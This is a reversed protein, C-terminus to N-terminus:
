SHNRGDSGHHRLCRRHKGGKFRFSFHTVRKHIQLSLTQIYSQKVYWFRSSFLPQYFSSPLASASLYLLVHRGVSWSSPLNTHSEFKHALIFLHIVCRKLPSVCQFLSSLTLSYSSRPWWWVPHRDFSDFQIKFSFSHCFSLLCLSPSLLAHSPFPFSYLSLVQILPDGPSDILMAKLINGSKSFFFSYWNKFTILGFLFQSLGRFRLLLPPFVWENPLFRLYSLIAVNLYVVSLGEDVHHRSLTLSCLSHTLTHTHTHSLERVSYWRRHFICFSGNRGIATASNTTFASPYSSLSYKRWKSDRKCM